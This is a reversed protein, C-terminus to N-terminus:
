FICDTASLKHLHGAKRIPLEAASNFFLPPYDGTVVMNKAAM